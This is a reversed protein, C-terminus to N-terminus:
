PGLAEPTKLGGQLIQSDLELVAATGTHAVVGIAVTPSQNTRLRAARSLLRVSCALAVVFVRECPM